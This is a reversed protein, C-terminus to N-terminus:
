SNSPVLSSLLWILNEPLFEFSRQHERSTGINPSPLAWNGRNIEKRIGEFDVTLLKALLCWHSSFTTLRCWRWRTFYFRWHGIRFVFDILNRKICHISNNGSVLSILIFWMWSQSLPFNETFLIASNCNSDLRIYLNVFQCARLWKRASSVM